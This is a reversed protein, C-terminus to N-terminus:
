PPGRRSSPLPDSGLPLWHRRLARAAEVLAQRHSPDAQRELDRQLAQPDVGLTMAVIWGVAAIVGLVVGAVGIARGTRARRGAAEDGALEARLRARSGLYWAVGSCPLTIAFGLGATLVLLGIGLIGVTLAAATMVDRGGGGNVFRPPEAEPRPRPPAPPPEWARPAPPPGPARPGPARPPLWGDRVPEDPGM